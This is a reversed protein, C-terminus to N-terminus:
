ARGRLPSMGLRQRLSRKKNGGGESIEVSIEIDPVDPPPPTKWQTGTGTVEKVGRIMGIADFVSNYQYPTLGEELQVTIM